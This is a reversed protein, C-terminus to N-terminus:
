IQGENFKMLILGIRNAITLSCCLLLAAHMCYSHRRPKEGLLCGFAGFSNVREETHDTLLRNLHAFSGRWALVGLWLFM